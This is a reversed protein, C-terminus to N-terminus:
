PSISCGEYKFIKSVVAFYRAMIVLQRSIVTSYVTLIVFADDRNTM